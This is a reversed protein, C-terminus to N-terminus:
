PSRFNLAFIFAKNPPGAIPRSVSGASGLDGVLHFDKARPDVAQLRLKSTETLAGLDVDHACDLDDLTPVDAVGVLQLAEELVEDAM